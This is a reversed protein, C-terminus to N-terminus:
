GEQPGVLVEVDILKHGQMADKATSIREYHIYPYGLNGGKSAGREWGTIFFERAM